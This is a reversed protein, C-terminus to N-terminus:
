GPNKVTRLHKGIYGIYINKDVDDLHIYIRKDGTKTHYTYVFKDDSPIGFRREESYKRLTSPSEPSANVGKLDNINTPNMLSFQGIIALHRLISAKNAGKMEEQLGNRASDIFVVRPFRASMESIVEEFSLDDFNLRSDYEQMLLQFSEENWCNDLIDSYRHIKDDSESYEEIEVEMKNSNFTKGSILFGDRLTYCATLNVSGRGNVKVQISYDAEVDESFPNNSVSISFITAKDHDVAKSKLFDRVTSGSDVLENPFDVGTYLRVSGLSRLISVFLDVIHIIENSSHQEYQNRTSLDNFYISKM